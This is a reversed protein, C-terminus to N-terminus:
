NANYMYAQYSYGTLLEKLASFKSKQIIEAEENNERIISM